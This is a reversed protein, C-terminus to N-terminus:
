ITSLIRPDIEYGYKSKGDSLLTGQYFCNEKSLNEHDSSKVYPKGGPYQYHEDEMGKYHMMEEVLVNEDATKANALGGAEPSNYVSDIASDLIWVIGTGGNKTSYSERNGNAYMSHNVANIVFDAGEASDVFEVEFQVKDSSMRMFTEQIMAHITEMPRETNNKRIYVKAKVTAGGTGGSDDTSDGNLPLAPLGLATDM